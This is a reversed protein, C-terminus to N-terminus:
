TRLQLEQDLLQLVRRHAELLTRGKSMITATLRVRIAALNQVRPDALLRSMENGTRYEARLRSLAQLEFQPRRMSLVDGEDILFRRAEGDVFAVDEHQWLEDVRRPWAALAARLNPNTLLGLDSSGLYADLVGTRPDFRWNSILVSGLLENVDHDTSGGNLGARLLELAAQQDLSHYDVVRELEALNDLFEAKLDQLLELEAASSEVGRRWEDAILALLVGATIIVAEVGARRWTKVAM